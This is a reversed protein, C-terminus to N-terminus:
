STRRTAKPTTLRMAPWCYRALSCAYAPWSRASVSRALEAATSPRAERGKQRRGASTKIKLWGCARGARYLGSLEKAVFGELQLTAAQAFVWAQSEDVGVLAQTRALATV